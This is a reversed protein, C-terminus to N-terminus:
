VEREFYGKLEVPNKGQAEIEGLLVKVFAKQSEETSSYANVYTRLFPLEYLKYPDGFSTFIVRPNRFIYGRWFAFVEDWGLRLSSGISDIQSVSCNVLTASINNENYVKEIDRHSPKKLTITKIGRENLEEELFKFKDLNSEKYAISCLLVTDGSKLDLPLISDVDRVIKISKEAIKTAIKEIDETIKVDTEKEDLLGVRDKLKLIRRVADKLREISISGDLVANKIYDFYTPEAFLLMDGGANIFKVPMEEEPVVASIGIMSLADSVICGNFELENRLLDTMLSKSLTAPYCVGLDDRETQFAPASIHGVMVTAPNLKFLEKYVYGYTEMWEEKSLPNVSTCFHQNRDDLGDGPFHKCGGAMLGESQLGKLYAGAIKAVQKPSDSVARTNIVPNDKNYNIDVVPAFSWHIGNKRCLQATAKGGQEILAEDDCAGWAMPNPLIHDCGKIPNPGFETDGSVIVPVSTYKNAFDAAAKIQEGTVNDVFIGGPMTRKFIEEFKALDEDNKMPVSYCLVQGCLDDLTMNEIIQEIMENKM